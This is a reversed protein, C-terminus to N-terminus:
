KKRRQRGRGFMKYLKWGLLAGDIINASNAITSIFRKTPSLTEDEEYIMDEWQNQLSEENKTIQQKLNSSKAQLDDPTMGSMLRALPKLLWARRTAYATVLLIIYFLTVILFATSKSGLVDELAYAIAFSLCLMVLISILLLVIAFFLAGVIKSVQRVTETKTYESRLEVWEKSGELFSAIKKVNDDSSIM